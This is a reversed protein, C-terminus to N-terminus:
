EPLCFLSDRTYYCVNQRAKDRWVNPRKAPQVDLWAGYIWLALLAALALVVVYKAAEVAYGQLLEIDWAARDDEAHAEQAGVATKEADEAFAGEASFVSV